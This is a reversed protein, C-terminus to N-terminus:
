SWRKWWLGVTLVTTEKLSQHFFIWYNHRTAFVTTKTSKYHKTKISL